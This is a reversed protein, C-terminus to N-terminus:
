ALSLRQWPFRLPATLLKMCFYGDAEQALVNASRTKLSVALKADASSLRNSYRANATVPARWTRFVLRWSRSNSNVRSTKLYIWSQSWGTWGVSFGVSAEVGFNFGAHRDVIPFDERDRWADQWTPSKPCSGDNINPIPFEGTVLISTFSERSLM